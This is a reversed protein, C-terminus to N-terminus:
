KIVLDMPPIESNDEMNSSNLEREYDEKPPRLKALNEDHFGATNDWATTAWDAGDIVTNEPIVEFTNLNCCAVTICGSTLIVNWEVYAKSVIVNHNGMKWPKPIVALKLIM